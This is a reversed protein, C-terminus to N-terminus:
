RRPPRVRPPDSCRTALWVLLVQWLVFGGLVGLWAVPGARSLMGSPLLAVSYILMIGVLWVGLASRVYRPVTSPRVTIGLERLDVPPHERVMRRRSRYVETHPYRDGLLRRTRASERPRFWAGFPLAVAEVRARAARFGDDGLISRGQASIVATVEGFGSSATARSPHYWGYLGCGCEPDPAAHDGGDACIAHESDGSWPGCSAYVTPLLSGDLDVFRFRRYGRLERPVLAPSGDFGFPGTM